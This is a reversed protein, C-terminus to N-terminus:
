QLQSLYELYYQEGELHNADYQEMDLIYKDNRLYIYGKKELEKTCSIFFAEGYENNDKYTPFLKYFKTKVKPIDFASEKDIVQATAILVKAVIPDTVLYPTAHKPNLQWKKTNKATVIWKRQKLNHLIKTLKTSDVSYNFYSKIKEKIAKSLLPDTRRDKSEERVIIFIIKAETKTM